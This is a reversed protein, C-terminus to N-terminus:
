QSPEQTPEKAEEPAEEKIEEKKEEKPEEKSAAKEEEEKREIEELYKERAIVAMDYLATDIAKKVEGQLYGILANWTMQREKDTELDRLFVLYRIVKELTLGRRALEVIKVVDLEAM